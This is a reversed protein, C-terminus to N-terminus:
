SAAAQPDHGIALSVVVEENAQARTVEGSIRGDRMVLIRDSLGILEPLESSVMLTAMGAESLERILDYIEAKAGVDIGRTPEDLLLVVPGTELWRALVVKQQTGGSLERTVQWPHSARIALRQISKAAMDREARRILVGLRSVKGLLPLSINAAIPLDLVLGQTKREEPLLAIGSRACTRVTLRQLPRENVTVTGGRTKELGALARLVRSRGSGILGGLGVVEGARVDFTLGDPETGPLVLNRVALVVRGQQVRSPQPKMTVERGVMERIIRQTDYGPAPGSSVVNGDRLVTVQDALEGVENLRHSIYLVAVGRATLGRVVKFLNELEQGALVASPEDLILLEADRTLARAIEVLQQQAVSLEGARVGPRIGEAGLEALIARVRERSARRDLVFRHKTMEQGLLVNEGVTLHPLVTLEQYVAAVGSALSDKPSHPDYPRGRWTMKGSDPRQGGTIISVLTSKGAGNEGVLAHVTGPHCTLDVGQLARAGPYTKTIARVELLPGSELGSGSAANDDSTLV